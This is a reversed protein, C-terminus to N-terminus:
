VSLTTGTQYRHIQDFGLFQVTNCHCFHCHNSNVAVTNNPLTQLTKPSTTNNDHHLTLDM